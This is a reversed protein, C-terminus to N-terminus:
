NISSTIWTKKNLKKRYENLFFFFFFILKERIYKFRKNLNDFYSITLLLYYVKHIVALAILALHKQM